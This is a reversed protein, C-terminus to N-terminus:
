NIEENLEKILYTFKIHNASLYFFPRVGEVYHRGKVIQKGIQSLVPHKHSDTILTPSNSVPLLFGRM